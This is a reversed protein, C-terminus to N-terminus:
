HSDVTQADVVGGGQHADLMSRLVDGAELFADVMDAQLHCSM